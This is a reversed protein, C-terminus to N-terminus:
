HSGPDAGNSSPDVLTSVGELDGLEEAAEYLDLQRQLDLWFAEGTGGFAKALRLAMPATVGRHGNVLQNVSLLSVDLANALERQTKGAGDLYQRLVAAPTAPKRGHIAFPNSASKAASRSPKM